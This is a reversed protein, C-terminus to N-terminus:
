EIVEDARVLVTDPVKLGLVKATKLNIVLEYRTPAQVPLDAPKEGKLIRDVYSAAQRFLDPLNPGYSILGGAAVYSRYPYVAPLRHTAALEFILARHVTAPGGTVVIGGQAVRAFTTIARKIEADSRVNVPMVEMGLPPALAQIVAFQGIGSPSAPDRFVAARTVHPAIQKLLELWKGSLSFEFQMFGTANGGPRALSEVIDAGVPDQVMAFVIPISNTARKLARTSASTSALIVDPTLAVLEEAEKRFRDADGAKGWRVHIRVNSNDTWGLQQLGQVFAPFRGQANADDPTSNMLVGIHRMRDPQQGRATVPWAVAGGLVGLFERRKM